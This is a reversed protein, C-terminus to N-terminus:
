NEVCVSGLESLHESLDAFMERETQDEEHNRDLYSLLDM